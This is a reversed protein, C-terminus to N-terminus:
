IFFFRSSPRKPEIWQTQYVYINVTIIIIFPYFVVEIMTSEYVNGRECIFFVRQHLSQQSLRGIMAYKDPRSTSSEGDGVARGRVEM